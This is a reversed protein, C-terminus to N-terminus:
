CRIVLIKQLVNTGSLVPARCSKTPIVLFGCDPIILGDWVVDTVFYSTYPLEMGNAATVNFIRLRSVQEELKPRINASFFELEFNFSSQRYGCCM